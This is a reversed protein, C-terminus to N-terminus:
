LFVTSNVKVIKSSGIHNIGKWVAGQYPAGIFWFFRSFDLQYLNKSIRMQKILFDGSKCDLNQYTLRAIFCVTHKGINLMFYILVWRRHIKFSKAYLSEQQLNIELFWPVRSAPETAIKDNVRLISKQVRQFNPNWRLNKAGKMSIFDKKFGLLLCFFVFGNNKLGSWFVPGGAFFV